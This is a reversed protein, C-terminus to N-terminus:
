GHRIRQAIAIRCGDFLHRVAHQRSISRPRHRLLVHLDGLRHPPEKGCEVLAVPAREGYRKVRLHLVRGDLLVGGKSAGLCEDPIRLLPKLGPVRERHLRLLDLARRCLVTRKAGYAHPARALPAPDLEVLSAEPNVLQAAAPDVADDLVAVSGFGEFGSPKRLLQLVHAAGGQVSALLRHLSAGVIEPPAMRRIRWCRVKALTTDTAASKTARPPVAAAATIM